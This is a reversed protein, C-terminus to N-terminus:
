PTATRENVPAPNVANGPASTGTVPAATGAAPAATAAPLNNNMPGRYGSQYRNPMPQTSFTRVPEQWSNWRNNQWYSWSNNPHYYWWRNQHNVMRWDNLNTRNAQRDARRDIRNEQRNAANDRIAAGTGPPVVVNTGPAQVEVGGGPAANVNVQARASNATALVLLAAVAALSIIAKM